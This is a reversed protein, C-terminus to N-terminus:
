VPCHNLLDKLKQKAAPWEDAIFLYRYSDRSMFDAAM